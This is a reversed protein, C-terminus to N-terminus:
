EERLGGEALFKIEEDTIVVMEMEEIHTSHCRLWRHVGDVITAFDETIVIPYSLDATSIRNMENMLERPTKWGDWVKMDLVSELTDTRRTISPRGELFKHVDSVLVVMNNVTATATGKSM